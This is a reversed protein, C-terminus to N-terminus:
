VLTSVMTLVLRLVMKPLMKVHSTTFVLPVAVMFIVMGHLFCEVTYSNEVGFCILALEM